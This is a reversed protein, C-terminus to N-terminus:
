LLSFFKSYSWHLYFTLSLFLISYGILFIGILHYLPIWSFGRFFCWHRFVHKKNNYVKMGKFKNLMLSTQEISKKTWTIIDICILIFTIADNWTRSKCKKIAKTSLPDWEIQKDSGCRVVYMYWFFFNVTIMQMKLFAIWDRITSLKNYSGHEIHLNEWILNVPTLWLSFHSSFFVFPDVFCQAAHVSIIIKIIM